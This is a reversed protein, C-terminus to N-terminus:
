IGPESYARQTSAYIMKIKAVSAIDSVQTQLSMKADPYCASFQQERNQLAKITLLLVRPTMGETM